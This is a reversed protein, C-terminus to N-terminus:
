QPAHPDAQGVPVTQAPPTQPQASVVRVGQGVPQTSVVLLLVLQPPHPMAQAMPAVHM